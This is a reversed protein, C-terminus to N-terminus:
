AKREKTGLKLEVYLPSIYTFPFWEIWESCDKQLERQIKESEFAWLPPPESEFTRLFVHVRSSYLKEIRYKIINVFLTFTVFHHWCSSSTSNDLEQWIATYCYLQLEFKVVFKDCLRHKIDVAQYRRNCVITLTYNNRPVYDLETIKYNTIHKTLYIKEVM